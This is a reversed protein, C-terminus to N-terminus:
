ALRKRDIEPMVIFPNSRYQIGVVLSYQGLSGYDSYGGSLPSGKGVGDVRVYYDGRGVRTLISADLLDVPNATAIVQQKSNLLDLQIDLNAGRAAPEAVISLIANDTVTFAFTDTDDRTEIIGTARLEGTGRDYLQTVGPHDDQRFGFGNQSTIIAVDDQNPRNANPYEGSSWQTLSRQYPNGMLPAWSTDSSGHGSYYEQSTTGHHNLGLAHGAEHSAADAVFKENGNGLQAPFVYVPTDTNWTFSGVFAIGGFNGGRWDQSSGGIVVRVGWETDGTQRRLKDVGPDETTVNVDFPIFDEAVRAWIHQIRELENNTFSSSSGEFNYAPTTFPQNSTYLANWVTGSTTHGDFDLYITHSAGPNSNLKFTNSLDTIPAFEAPGYVQPVEDFVGMCAQCFCTSVLGPATDADLHIRHELRELSTM